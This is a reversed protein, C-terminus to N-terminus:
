KLESHGKFFDRIYPQKLNKDWGDRPEPLNNVRTFEKIKEVWPACDHHSSATIPTDDVTLWGVFGFIAESATLGDEPAPSDKQCHCPIPEEDTSTGPVYGSDKCDPCVPKVAESIADQLQDACQDYISKFIKILEDDWVPSVNDSKKRWLDVLESLKENM